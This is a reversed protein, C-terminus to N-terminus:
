ISCTLQLPVGFMAYCNFCKLVQCNKGSTNMMECWWLVPSTECWDSWHCFKLNSLLSMHFQHWWTKPSRTGHNTLVVFQSIVNKPKNARQPDNPHIPVTVDCITTAWVMQSTEHQAEKFICIDMTSMARALIGSSVAAQKGVFMTLTQCWLSPYALTPDARAWHCQWHHRHESQLACVHRDFKNETASTHINGATCEWGFHQKAKSTLLGTTHQLWFMLWTPIHNEIIDLNFFSVTHRLCWTKLQLQSATMAHSRPPRVAQSSCVM